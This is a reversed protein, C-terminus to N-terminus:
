DGAGSQSVGMFPDLEVLQHALAAAIAEDIAAPELQALVAQHQWSQWLQFLVAQAFAAACGLASASYLSPQVSSANLRHRAFAAFPM